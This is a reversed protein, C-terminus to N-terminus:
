FLNIIIGFINIACMIAVILQLVKTKKSLLRISDDNMKMNRVFLENNKDIKADYGLLINKSNEQAISYKECLTILLAVQNLTKAISSELDEYSKMNDNQIRELNTLISDNKIQINKEIKILDDRLSVISDSLFSQNLNNKKFKEEMDNQLEENLDRVKENWKNIVSSLNLETYSIKDIVSKTMIEIQKENNLSLDNILSKTECVVLENMIEKLANSTQNIIEFDLGDESSAEFKYM